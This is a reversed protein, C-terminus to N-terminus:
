AHDRLEAELKGFLEDCGARRNKVDNEDGYYAGQETYVLRPGNRQASFALRTMSAPQPSHNHVVDIRRDTTLRVLDGVWRPDAGSAHKLRTCRVGLAELESSVANPRDVLFAARSKM